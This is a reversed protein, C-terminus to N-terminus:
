ENLLKTFEDMNTIFKCKTKVNEGSDNSAFSKRLSKMQMEESPFQIDKIRSPKFIPLINCTDFLDVSFGHRSPIYDPGIANEWDSKRNKWEKDSISDPKDCQDQYHYDSFFDTEEIYERINPNGFYLALIKNKLPIIQLLCKYNYDLRFRDNEGIKDTFDIYLSTYVSKWQNELVDKWVQHMISDKEQEIMEKVLNDGHYQKFNYFHLTKNIVKTAIDKNCQETVEERLQDMIKNLEFLNYNENFKYADYIKTSM